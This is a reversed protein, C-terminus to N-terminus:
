QIFESLSLYMYTETSIKRVTYESNESSTKRKSVRKDKSINGNKWETFSDPLMNKIITAAPITVILLYLFIIFGNAYFYGFAKAKYGSLQKSAFLLNILVSVVILIVGFFAFIIDSNIFSALIIAIGITLMSSAIFSCFDRILRM